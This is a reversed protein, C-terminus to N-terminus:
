SVTLLEIEFVLAANPPIPGNRFMGYALSPPIVLRRKGGVRMGPVGRDWGAIVQGIGLTFAFPERGISTDFQAGKQEPRSEDYLWGTYNVTVVRGSAAEAGTGTTLDTQSYAPSSSPSTPTDSCAVGLLAIVLFVIFRTNFVLVRMGQNDSFVATAAALQKAPSPPRTM